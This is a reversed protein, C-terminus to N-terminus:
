PALRDRPERIPLRRLGGFRSNRLWRVPPPNGPDAVFTVPWWNGSDIVFLFQSGATNELERTILETPNAPNPATMLLAGEAAEVVIEFEYGDEFTSDYSGAFRTWSNPDSPEAMDPLSIGAASETVCQFIEMIAAAGSPWTNALVAVAFDQSRIWYVSGVYGPVGGNHWRVTADPYDDIFLGYGYHGGDVSPPLGFNDNLRPTQRRQMETCSTRSLLGECGAMMLQAWTALDHASCFSNGSAVENPYGFDEPGYITGDDAHGYAFNGSVAVASADASCDALGAAPFVEVDLYEIFSMGGAREVVLGALALNSNSYNFVAGPRALLPVDALTAAWESLPEESASRFSPVAASNTILHRVAVQDANWRGPAFHLEPAYETVPDDLDVLGQDVLRLIAAATIQKGTSGHAFRTHADVTGGLDRHKLGYGSEYVLEGDVVVAVAAGVMDHVGM